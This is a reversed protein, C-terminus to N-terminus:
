YYTITYYVKKRLQKVADKFKFYVKINKNEFKKKYKEFKYRNNIVVANVKFKTAQSYILSINNNTTLLKIKFNKKNNNIIKLISKGISGTSGLIIIEKIM